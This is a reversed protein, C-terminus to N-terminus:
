FEILDILHMLPRKNNSIDIFNVVVWMVLGNLNLRFLQLSRVRLGLRMILGICQFIFNLLLGLYFIRRIHLWTSFDWLPFFVDYQLYRLVLDLWFLLSIFGKISFSLKYLFHNLRTFRAWRNISQVLVRYFLGLKTIINLMQWRFLFFCGFGDQITLLRLLSYFLVLSCSFDLWLLCFFSFGDQM